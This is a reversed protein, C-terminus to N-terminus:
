KVANIVNKKLVPKGSEDLDHRTKELSLPGDIHNNIEDIGFKEKTDQKYILYRLSLRMRPLELDDMAVPQTGHLTCNHWIAAYGAKGTLIEHECDMKRGADDHYTWKKSVVDLCKLHHPFQTAGLKHSKPIVFLPSDLETVDHIYIYLTLFEKPDHNTKGQPWDIMDQHMDIGNFYTIDRFQPKIYANLNKVGDGEIRKQVWEPIWVSPVGCVFKKIVTGYESGLLKYLISQLYKDKKGGSHKNIRILGTDTKKLCVQQLLCLLFFINIVSNVSGTTHPDSSPM